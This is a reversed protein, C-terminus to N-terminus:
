RSGRNGLDVLPLPVLDGVEHHSPRLLLPHLVRHLSRLGRHEPPDRRVLMWGTMEPHLLTCQELPAKRRRRPPRRRSPQHVRAKRVTPSPVQRPLQSLVGQFNCGLSPEVVLIGKEGSVPFGRVAM